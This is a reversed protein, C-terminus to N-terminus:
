KLGLNNLYKKEVLENVAFDKKIVNTDKLFNKTQTLTQLDADTFQLDWDITKISKALAEVPIKSEKAILALAEDPHNKLYDAAKQHVKLFREILDPNKQGFENRALYVGVTRIVNQSTALVKGAKALEINAVFPQWTAVADVNGTELATKHDSTPMNVINVDSNTLGNQQLLLMFFLHAGSGVQMAVKKGKLDKVSNVASDPRILVGYYFDDSYARGVAKVDIGTARASLAPLPGLNAIDLRDGALAENMPPGALFLNYDVATGDKSFEEEFFGKAKALITLSSSAQYGIRIVRKEQAASKEANKQGCGAATIGLLLILMFALVKKKM